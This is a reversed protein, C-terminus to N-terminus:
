QKVEQVQGNSTSKPVLNYMRDFDHDRLYPEVKERYASKLILLENTLRLIEREMLLFELREEITLNDM